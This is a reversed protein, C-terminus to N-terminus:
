SGNPWVSATMWCWQLFRSTLRDITVNSNFRNLNFTVRLLSLVQLMVLRYSVVVSHNAGAYLCRCKDFPGSYM